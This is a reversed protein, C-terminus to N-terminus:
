LLGLGGQTDVVEGAPRRLDGPDAGAGDRAAPVVVGLEEVEVGLEGSELRDTDVGPELDVLTEGQEEFLTTPEHDLVDIRGSEVGDCGLVVQGEDGGAFAPSDLRNM